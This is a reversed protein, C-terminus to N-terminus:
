LYYGPDPIRAELYNRYRAYFTSKSIGLQVLTRRVSLSSREVVGIIELKEASTYRM